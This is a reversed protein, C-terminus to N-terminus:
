NAFICYKELDRLARRINKQKLIRDQKNIANFDMNKHFINKQDTL